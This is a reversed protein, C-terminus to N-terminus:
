EIRNGTYEGYKEDIECSRLFDRIKRLTLATPKRGKLFLWITNTAVGVGGAIAADSFATDEKFKLLEQRWKEENTLSM